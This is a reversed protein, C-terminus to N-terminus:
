SLFNFLINIQISDKSYDIPILLIIYDIPLTDILYMYMIDIDQLEEQNERIM